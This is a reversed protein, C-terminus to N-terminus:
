LFTIIHHGISAVAHMLMHYETAQCSDQSFCMTDTMFGVYYLLGCMLFLMIVTNSLATQKKHVTFSTGGKNQTKKWFVYGGYLIVAILAIKDIICSWESYHSHHYLSTCTLFLFLAAYISYGMAMNIIANSAFFTSSFVLLPNM